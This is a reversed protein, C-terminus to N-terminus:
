SAPWKSRELMMAWHPKPQNAKNCWAWAQRWDSRVKQSIGFGWRGPPPENVAWLMKGAKADWARRIRPIAEKTM